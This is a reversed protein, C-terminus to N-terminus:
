GKKRRRLIQIDSRPLRQGRRAAQFLGRSPAHRRCLSAGAKGTVGGSRYDVTLKIEAACHGADGAFGAVSRAGTMDDGHIRSRLLLALMQDHIGTAQIWDRGDIEAARAVAGPFIYHGVNSQACQVEAKRRVAEFVALTPTFWVSSQGANGTVIGVLRQLVISGGVIRATQLTVDILWACFGGGTM